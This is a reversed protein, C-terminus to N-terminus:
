AGPWSPAPQMTSVILRYWLASVPPWASAPSVSRAIFAAGTAALLLDALIALVILQIM